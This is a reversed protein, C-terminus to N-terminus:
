DIQKLKCGRFTEQGKLSPFLEYFNRWTANSRKLSPVRISTYGGGAGSGRNIVKKNDRDTSYPMKDYKDWNWRNYSASNFPYGTQEHHMFFLGEISMGLVKTLELIAVERENHKAMLHNNNSGNVLNDINSFYSIFHDMPAKDYAPPLSLLELHRRLKKKAKRKNM